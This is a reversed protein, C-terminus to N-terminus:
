RIQPMRIPLQPLDSPIEKLNVALTGIIPTCTMAAEATIIVARPSTAAEVPAKLQLRRRSEFGRLQVAGGQLPTPNLWKGVDANVTLALLEPESVTDTQGKTKLM